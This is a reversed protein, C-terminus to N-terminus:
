CIATFCPCARLKACSEQPKSPLGNIYNIKLEDGPSLRLTPASPQGHFYFSNRGDAALAARLTLSLLHGKARLEPPTSLLNRQEGTWGLSCFVLCAAVSFAGLVTGPARMVRLM